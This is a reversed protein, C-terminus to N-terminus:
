LKKLRLKIFLFIYNLLYYVHKKKSRGSGRKLHITPVEVIRLEPFNKKAKILFEYLFEFHKSQYSDQNIVSKKFIRLNNSYDTLKLSSFYGLICNLLKSFIVNLVNEENRSKDLYRSFILIDLKHKVFYDLHKTIELFSHSGDSDLTILIDNKAYTIGHILASSFYNDQRNLIHLNDLNKDITLQEDRGVVFIVEFIYSSENIVENIEDILKKINNEENLAPIVVSINNM